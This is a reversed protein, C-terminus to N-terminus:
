IEILGNVLELLRGNSDSVRPESFAVILEPKTYILSISDGPNIKGESGDAYKVIFFGCRKKKRELARLRENYGM